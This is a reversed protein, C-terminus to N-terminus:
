CIMFNVLIIVKAYLLLNIRIQETKEYTLSNFKYIEEVELRNSDEFNLDNLKIKNYSLFLTLLKEEFIGYTTRSIGFNKLFTSIMQTEILFRIYNKVALKFINNHFDFSITYNDKKKFVLLDCPLNDFINLLESADIEKTCNILSYYMGYLNFDKCLIKEESIIQNELDISNNESKLRYYYLPM